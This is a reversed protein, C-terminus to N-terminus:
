RVLGGVMVLDGMEDRLLFMVSKCVICVIPESVAVSGRLVRGRHTTDLQLSRANIPACDSLAPPVPFAEAPKSCTSNTMTTWVMGSGAAKALRENQRKVGQEHERLMEENSRRQGIKTVDIGHQEKFDRRAAEDTSLQALRTLVEPLMQRKVDDPIDFPLNRFLDDM